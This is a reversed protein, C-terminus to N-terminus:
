NKYKVFDNYDSFVNLIAFFLNDLKEVRMNKSRIYDKIEKETLKVSFNHEYEQISNYISEAYMQVNYYVTNVGYRKKLKLLKIYNEIRCETSFVDIKKHLTDYKFKIKEGIQEYYPMTIPNYTGVGKGEFPENCSHCSSILNLSNMALFPYTSKPWFHEIQGNGANVITDIDCYPCVSIKNDNKFNEHFKERTFAEGDILKWIGEMSFFHEYFFNIFIKKFDDSIMEYKIFAAQSKLERNQKIYIYYYRRIELESMDSLIRDVLEVFCVGKHKRKCVYILIDNCEKNPFTRLYDIFSDIRAKNKYRIMECFLPIIIKKEFQKLKKGNTINKVYWM